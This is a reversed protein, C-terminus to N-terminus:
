KFRGDKGRKQKNKPKKQTVVEDRKKLVDSTLLLSQKEILNKFWIREEKWQEREDKAERKLEEIRNKSEDLSQKLHDIERQLADTEASVGLRQLANGRTESGTATSQKLEGFVAILDVIQVVTAGARDKTSPLEGTKTRRWISQRSIGVQDAAQQITLFAKTM